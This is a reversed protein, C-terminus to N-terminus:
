GRIGYISIRSGIALGGTYVKVSTVAQTNRWAGSRLAIENTSEVFGHLSRTTTNKTSSTYDLIDVITASFVNAAANSGPSRWSQITDQNIINNAIVTSGNGSLNHTDYVTSLNNNFGIKEAVPGSSTDRMVVRLQLHKYIQPLNAFDVQAVGTDTIISTQILEYPPDFGVIGSATVGLIRM